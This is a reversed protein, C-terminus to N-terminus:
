VMKLESAGPNESVSAEGWEADEGMIGLLVHDTLLSQNTAAAESSARRLLAFAFISADKLGSAVSRSLRRCLATALVSRIKGTAV